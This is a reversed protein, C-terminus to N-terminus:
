LIVNIYKELIGWVANTHEFGPEFMDMFAIFYNKFQMIDFNDLGGGYLKMYVYSLIYSMEVYALPTQTTTHIIADKNDQKKYNKSTIGNEEVFEPITKHDFLDMAVSNLKFEGTGEVMRILPILINKQNALTADGHGHLEYNYKAWEYNIVVSMCMQLDSESAEGMANILLRKYGWNAILNHISKTQLLNVAENMINQPSVICNYFYKAHPITEKILNQALELNSKVSHGLQDGGFDCVAQMGECLGEAMDEINGSAMKKVTDLYDKWFKIKEINEKITQANSLGNLSDLAEASQGITEVVTSIGMFYYAISDKNGGFTEAAVGALKDFDEVSKARINNVVASYLKLGALIDSIEQLAAEIKQIKEYKELKQKEEKNMKESSEKIADLEEPTLVYDELHECIDEVLDVLDQAKELLGSANNSERNTLGAEGFIDLVKTFIKRTSEIQKEDAGSTMFSMLDEATDMLLEFIQQVAEGRNNLMNVRFKGKKFIDSKRVLSMAQSLADKFPMTVKNFFGSISGTVFNLWEFIMSDKVVLQVLLYYVNKKNDVISDRLKEAIHTDIVATDASVQPTTQVNDSM